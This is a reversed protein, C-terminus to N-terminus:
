DYHRMNQVFLVYLNTTINVAVSLVDVHPALAMCRRFLVFVHMFSLLDAVTAPHPTSIYRTGM